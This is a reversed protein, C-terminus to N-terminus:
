QSSQIHTCVYIGSSPQDRNSAQSVDHIPACRSCSRAIRIRRNKGINHLCIGYVSAPSPIVQLLAELSAISVVGDSVSRCLSLAELWYLYSLRLFENISGGDQLDDTANRTPNCGLLHDIWYRLCMLIDRFINHAKRLTPGPSTLNDPSAAYWV